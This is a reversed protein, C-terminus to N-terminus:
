PENEGLTALQTQLTIDVRKFPGKTMNTSNYLNQVAKGNVSKKDNVFDAASTYHIVRLDHKRKHAPLSLCVSQEQFHTLSLPFSNELTSDESSHRM